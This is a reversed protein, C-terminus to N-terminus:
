RTRRVLDDAVIRIATECCERRTSDAEQWESAWYAFPGLELTLGEVELQIQWIHRAGEIQSLSGDLIQAAYAKAVMLGARLPDPVLVGLEDLARELLAGTESFTPNLEGAV